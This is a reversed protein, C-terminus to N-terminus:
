TSSLLEKLVVGIKLFEELNSSKHIYCSVQLQAVALRDQPSDSSTLIAVPVQALAPNGRINRLVERGDCKPLNLDLIILDPRFAAAEQGARRVFAVAEEGDAIVFLESELAQERLMERILFVDAPNDEIVLIRLATTLPSENM